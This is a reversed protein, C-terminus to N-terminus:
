DSTTARFSGFVYWDVPLRSEHYLWVNLVVYLPTVLTQSGLCRQNWIRITTPTLDALYLDM